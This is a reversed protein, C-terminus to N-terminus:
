NSSKSCLKLLIEKNSTLWSETMEHIVYVRQMKMDSPNAVAHNTLEPYADDNKSTYFYSVFNKESRLETTDIGGRGGRYCVFFGQNNPKFILLFLGKRGNERWNLEVQDIWENLEKCGDKQIFQHFPIKKRGKAELILEHLEDPPIVDGKCLLNQGKSLSQIRSSNVGGTFAGSNPVRTFSLNFIKHFFECVEREIRKGKDKNPNGM